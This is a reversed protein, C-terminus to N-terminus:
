FVILSAADFHDTLNLDISLLQKSHKLTMKRTYDSRGTLKERAILLNWLVQPVETM